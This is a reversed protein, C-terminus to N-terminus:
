SAVPLHTLLYTSSSSDFLQITSSAFCPVCVENVGNGAQFVISSFRVTLAQAGGTFLRTIGKGDITCRDWPFIALCSVEMDTDVAAVTLDIPADLELVGPCIWIRGSGRALAAQLGRGSCECLSPLGVRCFFTFFLTSRRNQDFRFASKAYNEIAAVSPDDSRGRIWSSSPMGSRRREGATRDEEMQSLVLPALLAGLLVALLFFSVSHSMM